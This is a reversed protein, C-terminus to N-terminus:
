PLNNKVRIILNLNEHKALFDCIHNKIERMIYGLESKNYNQTAFSLLIELLFLPLAHVADLGTPYTRLSTRAGGSMGFTFPQSQPPNFLSPPPPNAFVASAAPQSQSNGFVSPPPNSNSPAAPQSQSNSNSPPAPPVRTGREIVIPDSNHKIVLIDYRHCLYEAARVIRDLNSKTYDEGRMSASKSAYKDILRNRQLDLLIYFNNQYAYPLTINSSRKM